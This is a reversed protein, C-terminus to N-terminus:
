AGKLAAVAAYADRIVPLPIGVPIATEARKLVNRSIGTLVAMQDTSIGAESKLRKLEEATQIRAEAQQRYRESSATRREADRQALDAALQDKVFRYRDALVQREQESLNGSKLREIVEDFSLEAVEERYEELSVEPAPLLPDQTPPLGDREWEDLAAVIRNYVEGRVDDYVAKAIRVVPIRLRMALDDVTLHLDRLRQELDTAM